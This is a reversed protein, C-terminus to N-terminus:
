FTPQNQWCTVRSLFHKEGTVNDTIESNQGGFEVYLLKMSKKKKKKKGEIDMSKHTTTPWNRDERVWNTNRLALNMIRQEYCRSYHNNIHQVSQKQHSWVYRSMGHLVYRCTLFSEVWTSYPYPHLLLFVGALLGQPDQRDKGGLM